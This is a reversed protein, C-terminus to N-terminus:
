RFLSMGNKATVQGVTECLCLGYDLMLDDNTEGGFSFSRSWIGIDYTNQPTHCNIYTSM